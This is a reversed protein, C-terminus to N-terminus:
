CDAMDRVSYTDVRTRRGVLKGAQPWQQCVYWNSKIVVGFTCDCDERGVRLGTRRILVEAYPLKKGRLKPVRVGASVVPVMLGSKQTVSVGRATAGAAGVSAILLATCASVLVTLAAAALARKM